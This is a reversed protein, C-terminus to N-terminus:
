MSLYEVKPVPRAKVAKVTEGPKGSRTKRRHSGAKGGAATSMSRRQPLTRTTRAEDLRTAPSRQADRVPVAGERRRDFAELEGSSLLDPAAGRPDLLEIQEPHTLRMMPGDREEIWGRVRVRRGELAKLDLGQKALYRHARGEVILTFDTRWHRGFNLYTTRRYRAVRQVRGEVVQFTHTYPLLTAPRSARRVRYSAHRWIKRAANRAVAEHQQLERVCSRADIASYARALGANLLAAQLWVESKRSEDGHVTVQALVRNYRDRPMSKLTLAARSSSKRRAGAGSATWLTVSRGAALHSLRAVADEALPWRNQAGGIRGSHMTKGAARKGTIRAAMAIGASEDASATGFVTFAATAGSSPATRRGPRNAVLPKRPAMAGILRVETGNELLLTEGNIVAAVSLTPGRRLQCGGFPLTDVVTGGAVVATVM